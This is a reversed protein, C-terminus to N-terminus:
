VDDGSHEALAVAEQALERGREAEGQMSALISAGALAKVRLPAPAGDGGAVLARELWTRGESLHGWWFRWLAGALRLMVEPDHEEGWSLAARLNGLDAELRRHWAGEESGLLAAEGQEGLETFFTAHCARVAEEEGSAALCEAAYERITELMSFRPEVGSEEEGRLLSKDILAELTELIEGDPEEASSCVLIPLACTQVGTVGIGRIGDEAQFFFFILLQRSERSDVAAECVVKM